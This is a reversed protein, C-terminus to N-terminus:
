QGAASALARAELAGPSLNETDAREIGQAKDFSDKELNQLEFYDYTYRGKASDGVIGFKVLVKTNFQQSERYLHEEWRDFNPHVILYNESSQIKARSTKDVVFEDDESKLEMNCRKCSVSINWVDYTHLKYKKKPLVHERDIMFHGGGHLITKCYCCTDEHRALHLTRLRKKVAVVEPHKNDWPADTLMAAKVADEEETTLSFTSLAPEYRDTM